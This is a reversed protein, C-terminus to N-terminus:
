MPFTAIIKLVNSTRLLREIFNFDMAEFVMMITEKNPELLRPLLTLAVFKQSDTSSPALLDLIRPLDAATLQQEM